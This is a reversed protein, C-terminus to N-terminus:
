VLAGKVDALIRKADDLDAIVVEGEVEWNKFKARRVTITNAQWTNDGYARIAFDSEPMDFDEILIDSPGGGKKGEILVGKGDGPGRGRASISCLKTGSSGSEALPFGQGVGSYVDVNLGYVDWKGTCQIIDPHADAPNVVPYGSNYVHLDRVLGSGQCPDEYCDYIFCGYTSHTGCGNFVRRVRHIHSNVATITRFGNALRFTDYGEEDIVRGFYKHDQLWVFADGRGQIYANTRWRPSWEGQCGDIILSAKGIDGNCKKLNIIADEPGKVLNVKGEGKDIMDSIDTTEGGEVIIPDHTPRPVGKDSYHPYRGSPPPPEPEVVPPPLPEVGSAAVTVLVNDKVALEPAELQLRVEGAIDPVVFGVAGAEVYQTEDHLLGWPDTNTFWQVFVRVGDEINIADVSIDQGVTLDEGDLGSLDFRPNWPPDPEGPETPGQKLEDIQAQLDTVAADLEGRVGQVLSEAYKLVEDVNVFQKVPLLKKPRDTM